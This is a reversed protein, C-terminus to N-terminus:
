HPVSYNCSNVTSSIVKIITTDKQWRAATQKNKGIFSVNLSANEGQGFDNSPICSYTGNHESTVRTINLIGTSSESVLIGNHYFRYIKVPPRAEATCKLIFSLNLVAVNDQVSSELRTDYPKDAPFLFYNILLPSM